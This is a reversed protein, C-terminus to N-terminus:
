GNTVGAMKSSLRLVEEKFVDGRHEFNKFMDFSACGPALLVVGGKNELLQYGKAAAESLDAVFSFKKEIGRLQGYITSAADGVLLVHEAKKEISDRLITFDSGKDKGGLILVMSRDMSNISKLTADVNTAKSDNIFEVDGVKGVTEM